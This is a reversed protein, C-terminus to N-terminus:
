RSKCAGENVRLYETLFKDMHQSVVSLIYSADGGHANLRSVSGSKWTATRGIEGSWPDSVDKKYELLVSFVGGAVHVNIHLSHDKQASGYLRASRLRSEVAYQISQRTLGIESADPSLDEVGFGMPECKAFLEFREGALAPAVASLVLVVAAPLVKNIGATTTQAMGTDLM